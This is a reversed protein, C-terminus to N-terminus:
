KESRLFKVISMPSVIMFLVVQYLSVNFGSVNPAIMKFPVDRGGAGYKIYCSVM